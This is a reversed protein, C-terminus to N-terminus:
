EYQGGRERGSARGIPELARLLEQEILRRDESQAALAPTFIQVQGRGRAKAHYMALDANRMLTTLGRSNESHLAIGISAGIEVSHGAIEYPESLARLLRRGLRRADEACAVDPVLLDSSCVDSSWDSIRM